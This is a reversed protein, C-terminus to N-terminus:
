PETGMAAYEDATLYEGCCRARSITSGCPCDRMELVLEGDPQDGCWPLAQWASESYPRGCSCVVVASRTPVVVASARVEVATAGAAEPSPISAATQPRNSSQM